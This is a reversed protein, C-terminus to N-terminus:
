TNACTTVCSKLLELTKTEIQQGHQRHFVLEWETLSEDFESTLKISANFGSGWDDLLTYEVKCTPSGFDCATLSSMLALPLLFLGSRKLLKRFTAVSLSTSM